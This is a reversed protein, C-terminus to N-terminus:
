DRLYSGVRSSSAEKSYKCEDNEATDDGHHIRAMAGMENVFEEGKETSNNLAKVAASIESTLKGKFRTGYAEQGLEDRLHNTIKKLDAYSYRTPNM